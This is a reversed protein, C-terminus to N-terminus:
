ICIYLIMSLHFYSIFKFWMSVYLHTQSLSLTSVNIGFQNCRGCELLGNGAVSGKKAARIRSLAGDLIWGRNGEFVPVKSNALGIGDSRGHFLGIKRFFFGNEGRLPFCLCNKLVTSLAKLKKDRPKCNKGGWIMMWWIEFLPASLQGMPGGQTRLITLLGQNRYLFLWWRNSVLSQM